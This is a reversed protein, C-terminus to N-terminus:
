GTAPSQSTLLNQGIRSHGHLRTRVHARRIVTILLQLLYLAPNLAHHTQTRIFCALAPRHPDPRLAAASGPGVEDIRSRRGVLLNKLLEDRGIVGPLRQQVPAVSVHRGAIQHRLWGNGQVVPDAYGSRGAMRKALRFHLSRHSPHPRPASPSLLHPLNPLTPLTPPKPFSCRPSLASQRM